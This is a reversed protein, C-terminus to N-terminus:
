RPKRSRDCADYGISDDVVNPPAIKCDFFDVHLGILVYRTLVHPRMRSPSTATLRQRRAGTRRNKVATASTTPTITTMGPMAAAAVCNTVGIAGDIVGAEGVDILPENVGSGLATDLVM